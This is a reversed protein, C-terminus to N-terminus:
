KILVLKITSTYEAARLRAFYVGAAVTNNEGDRGNWRVRYSGATVREDMLTAVRAGLINFIELNVPAERPLDFSIFTEPNFPNPYNQYLQFRDPIITVAQGCEAEVEVKLGYYVKFRGFPLQAPGPIDYHDREAMDIVRGMVADRLVLVLEDLPLQVPTWELRLNPSNESDIHLDWINLVSANRIDRLFRCGDPADRTFLNQDAHFMDFEVLDYIDPGDVSNENVGLMARGSTKGAAILKLSLYMNEPGSPPPSEYQNFHPDILITRGADAHCYIAYGVWPELHGSGLSSDIVIEYDFQEGPETPRAHILSSVHYPFDSQEVEIPFLFPNAILNWGKELRIEHPTDTSVTSGSPLSLAFQRNIHRFFYARDPEILDAAFIQSLQDSGQNSTHELIRWKDDNDGTSAPLGARTNFIMGVTGVDAYLSDEPLEARDLRFSWYDDERLPQVTPKRGADSAYANGLRWRVTVTDVGTGADSVYIQITRSTDSSLPVVQDIEPKRSDQWSASVTMFSTDMHCDTQRDFPASYSDHIIMLQASTPNPDDNRPTYRIGLSYNSDGSITFVKAGIIAFPASVSVSDVTLECGGINTLVISTDASESLEVAPGFDFVGPESLIGACGTGKAIVFSLTKMTDPPINVNHYKLTMIFSSDSSPAGTDAPIFQGAFSLDNLYLISGGPYSSLPPDFSFWDPHDIRLSDILAEDGIQNTIKFSSFAASGCVSVGGFNLPDDFGWVDSIGSGSYLPPACDGEALDWIVPTVTYERTTKPAFIIPLAMEGPDLYVPLSVVPDLYFITDYPQFTISDVISTVNSNNALTLYRTESQGV